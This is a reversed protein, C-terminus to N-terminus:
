ARVNLYWESVFRVHMLRDPQLSPDKLKVTFDPSPFTFIQNAPTAILGM